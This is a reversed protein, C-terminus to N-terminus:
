IREGPRPWLEGRELEAFAVDVGSEWSRTLLRHMIWLQRVRVVDRDLAADDILSQLLGLGLVPIPPTLLDPEARLAARLRGPDGGGQLLEVLRGVRDPSVPEGIPEGRVNGSMLAAAMLLRQIREHHGLNTAARLQDHVYRQFDDALDANDRQLDIAATPDGSTLQTVVIDFYGDDLGHARFRALVARRAEIIEALEDEGQQRAARVFPSLLADIVPELLLPEAAVADRIARASGAEIFEHLSAYLNRGERVSRLVLRWAIFQDVDVGQERLDNEVDILYDEFAPDLMRPDAACLALVEEASRADTLRVFSHRPDPDM